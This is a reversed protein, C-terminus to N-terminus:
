TPGYWVKPSILLICKVTCWQIAIYKKILTFLLFLYWSHAQKIKSSLYINAFYYFLIIHCKTNLGFLSNDNADGPHQYEPKCRAFCCACVTQNTKMFVQKCLHKQIKLEFECIECFKWIQKEKRECCIAFCLIYYFLVFTLTSCLSAVCYFKEILIIDM